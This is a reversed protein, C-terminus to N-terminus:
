KYDKELRKIDDLIERVTEKLENGMRKLEDKNGNNMLSITAYYTPKYKDIFDLFNEKFFITYM